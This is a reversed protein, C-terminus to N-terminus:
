GNGLTLGGNKEGICVFLEFLPRLMAKFVPKNSIFRAIAEGHKLYFNRFWKPALRNIYFRAMETKYTHWGGFIEAAVWCSYNSGGWTGLIGLNVGNSPNRTNSTRLGALQAGLASNLQGAQAQLGSQGGVAINFLNQAASVNFQANTNRTDAAARTAAQIATGSDMIGQSQFQPMIDRQAANVQEQTQQEDIGGVVKAQPSTGELISQINNSLAAYNKQQYPEMFQLMKLNQDNLKDEAPTAVTTNTVTKPGGM